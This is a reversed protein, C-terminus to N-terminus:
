QMPVAPSTCATNAGCDGVSDCGCVGSPLCVTGQSNGTCETNDRCRCHGGSCLTLSGTCDNDDGCFGCVNTLQDCHLDVLPSFFDCDADVTCSCHRMIPAGVCTGGGCNADVLCEHCFGNQCYPLNAICDTDDNCVRCQGSVTDCASL